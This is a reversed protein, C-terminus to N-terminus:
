HRGVSFFCERISYVEGFTRVVSNSKPNPPISDVKGVWFQHTIYDICLLHGKLLRPKTTQSHSWVPTLTDLINFEVQLTLDVLPLIVTSLVGRARISDYHRTLRFLARLTWAHVPPTYPYLVVHREGEM